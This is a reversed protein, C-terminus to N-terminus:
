RGKNRATPGHDPFAIVPGPKSPDCMRCDNCTVKRGKREAAIAPCVVVAKTGDHTRGKTFDPRVVVTARWGMREAEDVEDLSDCSAMFHESLWQHADERWQHTYGVVDLGLKRSGDIWRLLIDPDIAAPDGIAGFRVMRASAARSLIARAFSYDKGKSACKVMAAHAFSPSGHQAYCRAKNDPANRKLLPCSGCSDLSEERTAGVWLTPVNGTKKNKTTGLWLGSIGM